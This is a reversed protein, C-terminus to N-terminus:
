FICDSGDLVIHIILGLAFLNVWQRRGGLLRQAVPHPLSAVWLVVYATIALPSHLPHFGISCREPDYIPTALLHDLDIVMTALLTILAPWLMQRYFLGAVLLPVIFHLSLHLMTVM